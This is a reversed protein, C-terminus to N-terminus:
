RPFYRASRVLLWVTVGYLALGVGWVLAGAPDVDDGALENMLGLACQLGAISALVMGTIRWANDRRLVRFGAIVQTVGFGLLLIGPVILALSLFALFAVVVLMAAIPVVGGIILLVGAATVIGPRSRVGEMKGGAKGEPPRRAEDEPKLAWSM